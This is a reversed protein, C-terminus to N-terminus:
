SFINIIGCVVAGILAIALLAFFTTLIATGIFGLFSDSHFIEKGSKDVMIYCKRDRKEM